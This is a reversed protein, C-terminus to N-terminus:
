SLVTADGALHGGDVVYEAGTVYSRRTPPSSSCWRPSTTSPASGSSAAPEQLVTADNTPRRGRLPDDAHRHRGPAGHQGPHGHRRARHRGVPLGRIRGSAPRTPRCSRAPGGDRREVLHQRDVGGGAKEDVPRGDQHRPLRRHPQHRAGPPVRRGRLPRDANFDLIGANNVLMPSRASPRRPRRGRRGALRGRRHRRPARLPGRRRDDAAVAAGEDALVDALM